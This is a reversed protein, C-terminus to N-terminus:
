GDYRSYFVGFTVFSIGIITGAIIGFFQVFEMGTLLYLMITSASTVLVVGANIHAARKLKPSTYGIKANLLMILGVVFTVYPIILFFLEFSLLGFVGIWIIFVMINTAIAIKRGVNEREEAMEKDFPDEFFSKQIGRRILITFGIGEASAIVWPLFHFLPDNVLYSYYDMVGAFFLLFGWVISILASFNRFGRKEYNQIRDIYALFSKLDNDVYLNHDGKM